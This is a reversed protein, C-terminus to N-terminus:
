ARDAAAQLSEITFRRRSVAMSTDDLIERAM